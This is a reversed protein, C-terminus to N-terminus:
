KNLTLVKLYVGYFYGALLLAAVLVLVWIAWGAIGDWVGSSDAEELVLTRIPNVSLFGALLVYRVIPLFDRQGYPELSIRRASRQLVM